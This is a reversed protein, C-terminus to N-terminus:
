KGDDRDRFTDRRPRAYGVKILDNMADSFGAKLENMLDEDGKQFRYAEIKAGLELLREAHDGLWTTGATVISEPRFYYRLDVLYDDGPTPGLVAVKPGDMAYVRPVGYNGPDPFAERIFSEEKLDLNVYAANVLLSFSYPAIFDDPLSIRDFGAQITTRAKKRLAFIEAKQLISDEANKVFVPINAVFSAETSELGDQIRQSLEAYNM